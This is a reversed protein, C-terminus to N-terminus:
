SQVNTDDGTASEPNDDKRMFRGNVRPRRSAARARLEYKAPRVRPLNVPPLYGHNLVDGDLVILGHKVAKKLRYKQIAQARYAQTDMRHKLSTCPKEHVNVANDMNCTKQSPTSVPILVAAVDSVDSCSNERHKDIHVMGASKDVIDETLVTTHESPSGQVFNDWFLDPYSYISLLEDEKMFPAIDQEAAPKIQSSSSAPPPPKHAAPFSRFLPEAEFDLSLLLNETNNYEM